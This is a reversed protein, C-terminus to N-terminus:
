HPEVTRSNPTVQLQRYDSAAKLGRQIAENADFVRGDLGVRPIQTAIRGVAIDTLKSAEVDVISSDLTPEAAFRQGEVQLMAGDVPERHLRLM